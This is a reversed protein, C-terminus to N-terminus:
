SETAAAGAADGGAGIPPAEAAGVAGDRGITVAKGTALLRVIDPQQESTLVGAGDVAPQGSTAQVVTTVSQEPQGVESPEDLIPDLEPEPSEQHAAISGPLGIRLEEIRQWLPELAAEPDRSFVSGRIRVFVCNGVRELVAQRRIDSEWQDV